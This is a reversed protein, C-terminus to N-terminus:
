VGRYLLGTNGLYEKSINYYKVKNIQTRDISNKETDSIAYTETHGDVTESSIIKGETEAEQQDLKLNCEMIECICNKVSETVLTNDVQLRNFTINDLFVRAKREYSTFSIADIITGGYTTSYYTFDIYQAM